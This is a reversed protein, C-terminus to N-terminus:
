IIGTLKGSSISGTVDKLIYKDNTGPLVIGLDKFTINLAPLRLDTGSNLSKSSDIGFAEMYGQILEQTPKIENPILVSSEHSEVRMSIGLDMEPVKSVRRVHDQFHSVRRISQFKLNNIGRPKPQTNKSLDPNSSAKQLRIKDVYSLYLYVAFLFVDLIICIVIGTYDVRSSSGAPCSSLLPCAFPETQGTPCYHKDPCKIQQHSDIILM